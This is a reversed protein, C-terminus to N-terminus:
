KKPLVTYFFSVDADCDSQAHHQRESKIQVEIRFTESIDKDSLVVSFTNDDQWKGERGGSTILRLSKLPEGMPDSATVVFEVLDGSRLIQKTVIARLRSSDPTWINGISDRASEIRPFYDEKTELKSRYRILRTRIEGAIGTALHKQHPLLERRHAEPDRLKELEDLYVRMTKLDGLADTFKDWHKELITRIDFFDAYYILRAEVVGGKQRKAEIDKRETWKLVREPSVGCKTPWDEGLSKTLMTAIFDRLANETDKLVQTIDIQM